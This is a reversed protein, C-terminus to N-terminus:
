TTPVRRPGGSSRRVIPRLPCCSRGSSRPPDRGVRCCWEDLVANKQAWDDHPPFTNWLDAHEAVLRLTVKEGGGGILIRIPHAAPPNLVGLRAEVRPWRLKWTTSGLDRTGFDYGYESYDRAFWGSGLGLIVRGGALHDVTRAM